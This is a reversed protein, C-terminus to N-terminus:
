RACRQPAWFAAAPDSLTLDDAPWPGPGPPDEIVRRGVEDLVIRRRFRGAPGSGDIVVLRLRGAEDYYQDRTAEGAGLEPPLPGTRALRRARGWGDLWALRLSDGGACPDPQRRAENLRGEDRRRRLDRVLEEAFAEGAGAAPAAEAKRAVARAEPLVGVARPRAAGATAEPGPERPAAAV